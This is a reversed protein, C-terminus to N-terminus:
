LNNFISYKSKVQNRKKRNKKFKKKIIKKRKVKRIIKKSNNKVINKKIGTRKRKRRRRRRGRKKSGSALVKRAINKASSKAIKKFDSGTINKSPNERKKEILSTGFNIAEPIIYKKLFPFSRKAINSLVSFIGAGARNSKRFLNSYNDKEFVSIDRM